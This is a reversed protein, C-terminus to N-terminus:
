TAAECSRLDSESTIKTICVQTVCSRNKVFSFFEFVIAQRLANQFKYDFSTMM